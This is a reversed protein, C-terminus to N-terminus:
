PYSQKSTDPRRWGDDAQAYYAKMKKEIDLRLAEFTEADLRRPVFIPPAFRVVIRSFPKPVM